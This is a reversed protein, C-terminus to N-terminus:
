VEKRGFRDERWRLNDRYADNVARRFCDGLTAAGVFAVMKGAPLDARLTLLCDVEGFKVSLGRLVGGSHAVSGELEFEVSAILATDFLEQQVLRQEDVKSM